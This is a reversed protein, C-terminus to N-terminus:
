ILKEGKLLHMLVGIAASPKMGDELNFFYKNLFVWIMQCPKPYDIRMVFFIKFAIDIAKGISFFNYSVNDYDVIIEVPEFIDGIINLMPPITRSAALENRSEIYSTATPHYAIFADRSEMLSFKKTKEGTKTKTTPLLLANLMYFIASTNGDLIFYKFHALRFIYNSHMSSTITKVKENLQDFIDKLDNAIRNYKAQGKGKNLHLFHPFVTEMMYKEFLELKDLFSNM